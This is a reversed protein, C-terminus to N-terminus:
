MFGKNPRKRRAKMEKEIFEKHEKTVKLRIPSQVRPRFERLTSPESEIWTPRGGLELEKPQEPQVWTYGTNWAEPHSSKLAMEKCGGCEVYGCSLFDTGGLEREIRNYDWTSCAYGNYVGFEPDNTLELEPVEDKRNLYIALVAGGAMLFAVGVSIALALWGLYMYLM